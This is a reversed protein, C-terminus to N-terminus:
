WFWFTLDWVMVRKIQKFLKEKHGILKCASLKKVTLFDKVIRNNM